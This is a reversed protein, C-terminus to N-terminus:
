LYAEEHGLMPILRFITFFAKQPDLITRNKFPPLQLCCIEKRIKTSTATRPSTLAATLDVAGGGSM